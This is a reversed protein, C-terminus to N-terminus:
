NPSALLSIVVAVINMYQTDEMEVAFNRGNMLIKIRKVMLGEVQLGVCYM